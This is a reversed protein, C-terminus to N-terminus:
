FWFTRLTRKRSFFLGNWFSFINSIVIEEEKNFYIDNMFQFTTMFVSCEAVINLEYIFNEDWVKSHLVYSQIFWKFNICYTKNDFFSVFHLLNLEIKSYMIVFHINHKDCFDLHDQCLFKQILNKICVCFVEEQKFNNM